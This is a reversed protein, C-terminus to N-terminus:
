SRFEQPKHTTVPLPDTRRRSTDVGGDRRRQWQTALADHAVTPFAVFMAGAGRHRECYM